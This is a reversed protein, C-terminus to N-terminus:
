LFSYATPCNTTENEWPQRVDLLHVAVGKDLRAKLDEVSIQYVM